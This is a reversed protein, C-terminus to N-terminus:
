TPLAALTAGYTTKADPPRRRNSNRPVTRGATQVAAMSFSLLKKSCTNIMPPVPNMPWANTLRNMAHPQRTAYVICVFLPVPVDLAAQENRSSRSNM